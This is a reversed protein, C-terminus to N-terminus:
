PTGGAERLRRAVVAEGDDAPTSGRLLEIARPLSVPGLVRAVNDGLVIADGAKAAQDHCHDALECFSICGECYSKGAERVADVGGSGPAVVPSAAVDMLRRLGVEARRAQFRLDESARVRPFNTGARSLVIFGDDAVRVAGAMGLRDIALRLVHVYLGAQARTASLRASDTHGGRDPYNKIEGLRAVVGRDDETLVVVDLAVVGDPLLAQGPLELAAGAVILPLEAAGMEALLREFRRQSTALDPLPGGHRLMRLDLFHAQESPLVGAQHLAKALVAAGDRLLGQEFQEGRTIAFRSQGVKPELGVSLAVDRMSVDHVASIVNAECAPNAAFQELRRRANRRSPGGPRAAEDRKKSRSAM